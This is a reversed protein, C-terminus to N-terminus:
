KRESMSDYLGESQICGGREQSSLEELSKSLLRTIGQGLYDGADWPIQSLTLIQTFDIQGAILAMRM